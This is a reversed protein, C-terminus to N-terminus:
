DHFDESNKNKALVELIESAQEDTIDTKNGELMDEAYDPLQYDPPLEPFKMIRDCIKVLLEGSANKMEAVLKARALKLAVLHHYRTQIMCFINRFLIADRFSKQKMWLCLEMFSINNKELLRNINTRRESFLLCLFNYQKKTLKKEMFM